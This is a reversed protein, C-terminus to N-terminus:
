STFPLPVAPLVDTRSHVEPVNNVRFDYVQDCRLAELPLRAAPYPKFTMSKWRPLDHPWSHLPILPNNEYRDPHIYDIKVGRQLLAPLEELQVKETLYRDRSDKCVFLLSRLNGAMSPVSSRTSHNTAKHILGPGPEGRRWDAKMPDIEDV